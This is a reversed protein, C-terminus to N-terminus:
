GLKRVRSFGAVESFYGSVDGPMANAIKNPNELEIGQVPTFALSSSIGNTQGSSGYSTTKFKKQAKLALKSERPLIRLRGGVGGQGIMGLGEGTMTEEEKEGFKMRNAQKAMDSMGYREKM